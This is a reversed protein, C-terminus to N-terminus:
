MMSEIIKNLEEIKSQAENHKNKRLALIELKESIAKLLEKAEETNLDKFLIDYITKYSSLTEIQKALETEKKVNKLVSLMDDNKEKLTEITSRLNNGSKSLAWEERLEREDEKNLELTEIIVNLKAESPLYRNKKLDSMYGASIGTIDRFKSVGINKKNMMKELVEGFM